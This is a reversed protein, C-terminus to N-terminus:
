DFFGYNLRRTGSSTIQIFNSALLWQARWKRGHRIILLARYFLTLIVPPVLFLASFIFSFILADILVSHQFFSKLCGLYSSYNFTNFARMVAMDEVFGRRLKKDIKGVLPACSNKYSLLLKNIKKQVRYHLMFKDEIFFKYRPLEQLIMPKNFAVANLCPYKLFILSRLFACIFAAGIAQEVIEREEEVTKKLAKGNFILVSMFGAVPSRMGIIDKKEMKFAAPKNKNLTSGCIMKEGTQKDIFYSETRLVVLGTDEKSIKKIFSIIEKLGGEVVSDDDGLTWIFDGGSMKIVKLTNRDSGLNEKNKHYNILGPYKAKLGMIVECTNDTSCNDSVCVEVEGKLERAQRLINNLLNELSHSRNWTPIAISLLIKNDMKKNLIIKSIM